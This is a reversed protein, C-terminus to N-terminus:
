WKSDKTRFSRKWYFIDILSIWVPCLIDPINNLGLRDAPAAPINTYIFPLNVISFKFDGRNDYLKTKSQWFKSQYTLILIVGLQIPSILYNRDLYHGLMSYHLSLFDVTCHFTFKFSWTLMVDAEYSYLIFFVTFLPARNIGISNYWCTVTRRWASLVVLCITLVSLCHSQWRSGVFNHWFIINISVREM